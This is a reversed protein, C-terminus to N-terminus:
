SILMFSSCIRIYPWKGQDVCSFMHFDNLHVISQSTFISAIKVTIFVIQATTFILASLFIPRYPIQLWSGQSVLAGTDCFGLYKESRIKM